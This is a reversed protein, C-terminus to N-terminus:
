IDGCLNNYCLDCILEMNIVGGIDEDYPNAIWDADTNGCHQCTNENMTRNM